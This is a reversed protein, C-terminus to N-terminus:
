NVEIIRLQALDYDSQTTVIDSIAAIDATQLGDTPAAVAVSIGEDTMFAVCDAYGKAIVLSEIQAEELATEVMATLQTSATTVVADDEGTEYAMTEQLASVASDRSEQRSLRVQAFYDETTTGLDEAATEVLLNEEVEDSLVLTADDLLLDEELTETLEPVDDDRNYSWNLYIGACVFLLVTAVIANRKWIKTGM